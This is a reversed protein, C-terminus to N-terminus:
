STTRNSVNQSSLAQGVTKTGPPHPRLHAFGTERWSAYPLDPWITVADDM